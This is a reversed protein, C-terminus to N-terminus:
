WDIDKATKQSQHNLIGEKLKESFDRSFANVGKLLYKWTGSKEPFNETAIYRKKGKVLEFAAYRNRRMPTFYLDKFTCKFKDNKFDIVVVYDLLGKPRGSRGELYAKLVHSSSFQIRYVSDQRLDIDGDSLTSFYSLSSTYLLEKNLGEVSKVYAIEMSDSFMSTQTFFINGAMTVAPFILIIITFNLGRIM